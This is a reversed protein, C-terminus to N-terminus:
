KIKGKLGEMLLKNMSTIYSQEENLFGYKKDIFGVIMFITVGILCLQYFRLSPFYPKLIGASLIAMTPVQCWSYGRLLTYRSVIIKRRIKRFFPKNKLNM